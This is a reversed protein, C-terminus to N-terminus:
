DARIWYSSILVPTRTFGCCHGMAMYSQTGALSTALYEYLRNSLIRDAVEASPAHEEVLADFTAKTDLMVATLSGPSTVGVRALRASDVVQEEGSQADLGLIKPLVSQRTSRLCLVRLGNRAALLGVAAAITTKGVGGSGLCVVVRKENLLTQLSFPRVSNVM